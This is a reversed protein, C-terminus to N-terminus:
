KGHICKRNESDVIYREKKKIYMYTFDKGRMREREDRV